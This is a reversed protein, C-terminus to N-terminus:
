FVNWCADEQLYHRKELAAALFESYDICGSGDFDIGEIAQQLSPSFEALGARNLGEKIESITLTGDGNGDLANFIRRLSGIQDETFQGVMIQLAVKKLLTTSRFTKLDNLFDGM